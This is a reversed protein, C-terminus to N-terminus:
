NPAGVSSSDLTLLHTVGKDLRQQWRGGNMVVMGWLRDQDKQSLQLLGRASVCVTMYM